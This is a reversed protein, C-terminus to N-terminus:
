GRSEGARAALRELVLREAAELHAELRAAAAALDRARITSLLQLHERAVQAPDHAWASLLSLAARTQSKLQLFAQCLRRHGSLECLLEHFAFDLDVGRAREAPTDGVDALAAALRELRDLGDAPQLRIVQRVALTELAGRLSYIERIDDATLRLVFNGRGPANAVLGERQLQRLAERVPARSVDLQRAIELEVLRAGPPLRGSEIAARLQAAVADTLSRREVASLGAEM